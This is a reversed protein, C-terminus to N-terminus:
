RPRLVKEFCRSLPSGEFEGYCPIPEFGSSAYLGLAAEQRDATELRVTRYGARAAAAELADLVRRGHGRGRAEPVVFMRKIEAIGDARGRLGGCAVPRDGDEVVVFAGRPPEFEDPHLPPSPFAGPLDWYAADLEARLWGILLTAVPDDLAVTRVRIPVVL